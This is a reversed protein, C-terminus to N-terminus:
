ICLRVFLLIEFKFIKNTRLLGVLFLCLELSTSTEKLCLNAFLIYLPSGAEVVEVMTAKLKQSASNTSLCM